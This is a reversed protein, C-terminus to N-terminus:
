LFRATDGGRHAGHAKVQRRGHHLADEVCGAPAKDGELVLRLATQFAPGDYNGNLNTYLNGADAANQEDVLIAMRAFSDLLESRNIVGHKLWNALLQSGIRLTARDEMLSVGNQDPVSSCGIGQDVWRVVYGLISQTYADLLSAKEADPLPHEMLPLELIASKAVPNRNAALMKEQVGAVNVDHYHTAHLTAAHNTPVWATDAGALPHAQKGAILGAMNNNQTWMGKGIQGARNLGVALGTLTNNDEYAQFWSAQQMGTKTAMPGAEMATHIMDGTRDLFGTNIFIVRSAAARIAERLNVSMRQEEDMIGIKLTEPPLDLLEETLAFLRVTAAVEDPGHMKPKVVYVSRTRSNRPENGTRALDHRAVLATVMIDLFAEPIPQGGATTVADTYMALGTNRVLFVARGPLTLSSGDAATFHRDPNLRRIGDPEKDVGSATIDGKMFGTLNRYLLVKDAADVAAVSDEMDLITTIASELIVDRIGARSQSGVPHNRDIQLEIHLDNHRLLLSDPAEPTGTFGVFLSTCALGTETGDAMLALLDHRGANKKLVFATVDAYAHGDALPATRDLFGCAWAIVADGRVPNYGNDFGKGDEEDIVNQNGPKGYLADFLSGWRANVANLPYRANTAPDAGIFMPCVLQPGAIRTLEPDVNKTTVTFAEGEDVIYGTERLFREYAAPDFATCSNRRERFWDDNRDQMTARIELLRANEAGLDRVITALAAFFAEARIGTGPVAEDRIFTYLQSHIGLGALQVPQSSGNNRSEPHQSM